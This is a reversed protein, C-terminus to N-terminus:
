LKIHLSVYYVRSNAVITAVGVIKEGWVLSKGSLKTLALALPLMKLTLFDYFNKLFRKKPAGQIFFNVKM